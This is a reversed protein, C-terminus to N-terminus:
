FPPQNRRRAAVTPTGQLEALTMRFRNREELVRKRGQQIFADFKLTFKAMCDRLEDYGFNVDPLTDVLSKGGPPHRSTSMSPEFASAM